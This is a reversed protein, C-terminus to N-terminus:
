RKIKRHRTTSHNREISVAGVEGSVEVAVEVGRATVGRDELDTQGVGKTIMGGTTEAGRNGTILVVEVGAEVTESVEVVEGIVAVVVAVESGVAVVGTAVAAVGIVAVAVVESGVAAVLVVGVVVSDVGEATNRLVM